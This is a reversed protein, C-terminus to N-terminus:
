RDKTADADLPVDVPTDVSRHLDTYGQVCRDLWHPHASQLRPFLRLTANGRRLM